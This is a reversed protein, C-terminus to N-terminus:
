LVGHDQRRKIRGGLPHVTESMYQRVRPRCVRGIFSETGDADSKEWANHCGCNKRESCLSLTFHNSEEPSGHSRPATCSTTASHCLIASESCSGAATMTVYINQCKGWKKLRARAAAGHLNQSPYRAEALAEGPNEQFKREDCRARAASGHVNGINEQRRKARLM